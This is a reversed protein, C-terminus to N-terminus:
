TRCALHNALDTASLRLTDTDLKVLIAARRRRRWRSATSTGEWEPDSYGGTRDRCQRERSDGPWEAVATALEDLVQDDTRGSRKLVHFM